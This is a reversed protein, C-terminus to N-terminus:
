KKIQTHAIFCTNQIFKVDCIFVISGNSMKIVSHIIRKGDDAYAKEFITASLYKSYWELAENGQGNPISLHPIIPQSHFVSESGTGVDKSETGKIASDIISVIENILKLAM